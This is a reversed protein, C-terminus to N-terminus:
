ELIKMKNSSAIHRRHANSMAIYKLWKKKKKNM